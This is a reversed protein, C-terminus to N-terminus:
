YNKRRNYMYFLVYRYNGNKSFVGKLNKHYFISSSLIVEGSKFLEKFFFFREKQKM